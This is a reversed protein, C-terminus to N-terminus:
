MGDWCFLDKLLFVDVLFVVYLVYYIFECRGGVLCMLLFVCMDFVM